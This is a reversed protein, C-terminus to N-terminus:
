TYFCFLYLISWVIPFLWGPPAFPPQNLNQYREGFGGSALASLGGVALPIGLSILLKKIDLKM